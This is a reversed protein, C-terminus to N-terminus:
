RGWISIGFAAQPFRKAFGGFRQAESIVPQRQDQATRRDRMTRPRQDYGYRSDATGRPGTGVPDAESFTGTASGQGPALLEHPSVGEGGNGIPLRLSSGQDSATGMEADLIGAIGALLANCEEANGSERCGNLFETVFDLVQAHTLPQQDATNNRRRYESGGVYNDSFSAPMSAAGSTSDTQDGRFFRNSPMQDSGNTPHFFARIDAGLSSGAPAQDLALARNVRAAVHAQALKYDDKWCSPMLSLVRSIEDSPSRIM